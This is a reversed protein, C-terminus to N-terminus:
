RVDCDGKWKPYQTCGWDNLDNLVSPPLTRGLGDEVESLNCYDEWDEVRKGETNKGALRNCDADGLGALAVVSKCGQHDTYQLFQIIQQEFEVVRLTDADRYMARGKRIIDLRTVEASACPTQAQPRRITVVRFPIVPASAGRTQSM